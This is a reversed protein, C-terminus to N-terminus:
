KPFKNVWFIADFILCHFTILSLGFIISTKSLTSGPEFETLLVTGVLGILSIATIWLCAITFIWWLENNTKLFTITTPIWLAASILFISTLILTITGPFLQGSFITSSSQIVGFYFFTLYGLASIIMFGILLNRYIGTIGGWLEERHEPFMGIGVVYGGLVLFGGLANIIVFLNVQSM